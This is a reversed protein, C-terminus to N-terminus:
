TPGGESKFGLRAVLGGVIAGTVLASPVVYPADMSRFGGKAMFVILGTALGYLAGYGLGKLWSSSRELTLCTVLAVLSVRLTSAIIIEVPYPETPEFLIGLSAVAGVFAGMGLVLRLRLRM